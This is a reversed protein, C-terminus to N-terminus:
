LLVGRHVVAVGSLSRHMAFSQHADAWLTFLSRFPAFSAKGYRVCFQAFRPFGRGASSSGHWDRSACGPAACSEPLALSIKSRLIERPLARLLPRLDRSFPRAADAGTACHSLIRRAPSYSPKQRVPTAVAGNNYPVIANRPQGLFEKAEQATLSLHAHHIRLASPM